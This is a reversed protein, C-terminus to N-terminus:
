FTQPRPGVLRGVGAWIPNVLGIPILRNTWFTDTFFQLGAKSTEIWLTSFSSILLWIDVIIKSKYDFYKENQKNITKIHQYKVQPPIGAALYLSANYVDQTDKIQFINNHLIITTFITFVCKFDIKTWCLRYLWVM